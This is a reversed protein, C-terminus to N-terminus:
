GPAKLLSRRRQVVLLGFLVAYLVLFASEEALLWPDARYTALDALGELFLFATWALAALLVTPSASGATAALTIMLAADLLFFAAIGPTRVGFLSDDIQVAPLRAPLDIAVAACLALSCAALGVALAVVKDTTHRAFLASTTSPM